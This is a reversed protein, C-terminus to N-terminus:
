VEYYKEYPCEQPAITCFGSDFAECLECELVFEPCEASLPLGRGCFYKGNDSLCYCCDKCRNM